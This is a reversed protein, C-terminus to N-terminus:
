LLDFLLDHEFSEEECGSFEEFVTSNHYSSISHKRIEIDLLDVVPEFICILLQSSILFPNVIFVSVNYDFIARLLVHFGLRDM